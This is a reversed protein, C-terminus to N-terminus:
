SNKIYQDKGDVDGDGESPEGETTQAVPCKRFLPCSNMKELLPKWNPDLRLETLKALIEDRTHCERFPCGHAFPCTKIVETM